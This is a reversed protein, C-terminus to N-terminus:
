DYNKLIAKIARLPILIWEPRNEIEYDLENLAKELLFTQLLIKFDAQDKPVFDKNAAKDLYGKIYLRSTYYHWTEAWAELDGEKRRQDFESSIINSYSVYHLSSIMAALDRMASRRIRRESFSKSSDGEFSNMIYERGTWLIQKLDFDGHTRIKMVSIKHDYIKRFCDLIEKKLDIVERAEMATSEPLQEIIKKLKELSTRTLTQLGSFLSRQYHLSSEEKDFNKDSDHESLSTHLEATFEGLQYIREPLIIGTMEKITEPFDEYALPETIHEDLKKYDTDGSRTLVEEYYRNLLDKIHDWVEGQNETLLQLMGLFYAKGSRQEFSLTGAYKSIKDFSTQTSLFKITEVDPNFSQDLRRYIKLLLENNYTILTQRHETNVLESRIEQELDKIISKEASFNLTGTGTKTSKSKRFNEILYERYDEAYISDFLYGQDDGIKLKAIIGRKPIEKLVAEDDASTFSVPLQYYEPLGENFTVQLIIIRTPLDSIKVEISERINIEQIKRGAIEFWRRNLLYPPLIQESLKQLTRNKLLNNWNDIKLVPIKSEGEVREREKELIFWYYGYPSLTFLYPRESIQPFRNHSFVEVPTYGKYEALDLEAPQSFRSLNGLVLIQEDEFTRTYAIIKSNAPSLFEIDGRGFAKYKKRMGIIRKMWWLLSSSTMQQTEVNIAEYKYEPDIILPLYLKHPNAKSFGANRDSTWQMPTRVGDRDGLYFNDGMGIEDGYYIIPTGPLSFLLVNMLEIKSRNNELLPALRHRIGVNIKAQPDKTYVKYMYDREEDTVMELTLEDHNRLFIGWQCNEPIEPTQDIIDIIPYRDEMKVAMFMRPMIPFHYNMHCEDGDGFYAASDEPWMNAEALLVKNDYHKDVHARLKKLFDHTPQLNECNTDEREFLYPVADLRFGDVGMKCWYDLINFVEEQVKPNDFNLDPQHSFFRHWYYSQAEADWSWNSPETDTFIIRADKYKQPDDSWVYYDRENSDEPAKRARQFWPHQDSTHNIVLETIVKLGRSHAEKIFIKFDEVDGYSPNISYYDAIDYGDDRLPSPYFPLLWIATVGLDELYDLKQMLGEFDGIGDGNSDFFAKIHLEYIIADKYWQTEKSNSTNAM